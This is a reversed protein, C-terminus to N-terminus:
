EAMIEVGSTLMIGIEKNAEVFVTPDRDFQDEFVPVLAEGATGIAYALQDKTDPLAETITESSGDGNTITTTNVLSEAYGELMAATILKGYREFVHTDVDDALGSRMTDLDLAIASIPIDRGDLAMTNFTIVATQNRREPQGLLVAGKLPGEQVITARVPSIEDTNVGIELVSYYISGATIYEMSEHNKLGAPDILSAYATPQQMGYENTKPSVGSKDNRMDQMQEFTSSKRQAVQNSKYESSMRDVMPVAKAGQNIAMGTPTSGFAKVAGDSIGLTETTSNVAVTPGGKSPIYGPTSVKVTVREMSASREQQLFADLEEQTILPLAAQHSAAAQKSAEAEEKKAQAELRAQQERLKKREMLKQFQEDPIIKDNTGELEGLEDIKQEAEAIKDEANMLTLTEVYSDSGGSTKAEEKQTARDEEYIKKIEESNTTPKEGAGDRSINSENPNFNVDVKGAGQSGTLPNESSLSSFVFISGLALASCVAVGIRASSPIQGIKEKISM